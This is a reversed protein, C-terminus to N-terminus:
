YNARLKTVSLTMQPFMSDDIPRPLVATMRFTPTSKDWRHGLPLTITRYCIFGNNLCMMVAFVLLICELLIRVARKNVTDWCASNPPHVQWPTYRGLLTYRGLPTYRGPPHVQGPHTGAKPPHVQGPPHEQRPPTGAQPHVQRTPVQGPVGGGGWQSCFEQYVSRFINGQGLKTAPPLFKCIFALM